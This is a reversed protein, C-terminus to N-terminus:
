RGCRDGAPDAREHEGAQRLGAELVGAAFLARRVAPGVVRVSYWDDFRRVRAEPWWPHEVHILEHAFVFVCFPRLRLVCRCYRLWVEPPSWTTM